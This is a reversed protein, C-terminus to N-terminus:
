NDFHMSNLFNNMDKRTVFKSKTEQQQDIQPNACSLYHKCKKPMTYLRKQQPAFVVAAAGKKVHKPAGKPRSSRGAAAAISPRLLFINSNKTKRNRGAAAKISPRLLFIHRVDRRLLRRPAAVLASKYPGWKEGHAPLISFKIVRLQCFVILIFDLSKSEM